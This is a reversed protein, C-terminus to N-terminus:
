KKLVKKMIYNFTKLKISGVIDYNNNNKFYKIDNILYYDKSFINVKISNRINNENLKISAYYDKYKELILYLIDDIKIVKTIKNSIDINNVYKEITSIEKSSAFDFLKYKKNINLYYKKTYDFTYNNKNIIFINRNHVKKLKLNFIFCEYNNKIISNIYYLNNKYKIIDGKICIFKCDKKTINKIKINSLSLYLSKYVLNLKDNDISCIKRIYNNKNIIQVKNCIIYSNKNTNNNLKGLSFSGAKPNSTCAIGYIRCKTKKIIIYPGERHGEKIKNKEKKTKYRKALIVDGINLNNINYEEM